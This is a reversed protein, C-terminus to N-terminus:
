LAPDCRRSGFSSKCYHCPPARAAAPRTRVGLGAREVEKLMACMGFCVARVSLPIRAVSLGSSAKVECIPRVGRRQGQLAQGSSGRSFTPDWNRERWRTRANVRAITSISQVNDRPVGHKGARILLISRSFAHECNQKSRRGGRARM